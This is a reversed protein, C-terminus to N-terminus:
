VYLRVWLAKLTKAWCFSALRHWICYIIKVQIFDNFKQSKNTRDIVRTWIWDIIKRSGRYQRSWDSVLCSSRIKSDRSNGQWLNSMNTGAPTSVISVFTFTTLKSFYTACITAVFSFPFPDSHCFMLCCGTAAQKSFLVIRRSWQSRPMALSLPIWWFYCAHAVCPLWGTAAEISISLNRRRALHSSFRPPWWLLINM